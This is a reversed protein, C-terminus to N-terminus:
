IEDLLVDSISLLRAYAFLEMEPVDAPAFFKGPSFTQMTKNNKVLM